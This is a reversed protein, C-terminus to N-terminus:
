NSPIQHVELLQECYQKLKTIAQKAAKLRQWRRENPQVDELLARLPLLMLSFPEQEYKEVFHSYQMCGIGKENSIILLEGIGRQQLSFVQRDEGTGSYGSPFKSLSQAFEFILNFLENKEKQSKFMEFNLEELLLRVWCFYQAFLYLTSPMFYDYTISWNPDLQYTSNSQTNKSLTLFGQDELINKLRQELDQVSGLIPNSWRIIENKIREETSLQKAINQRYEEIEKVYEKKLTELANNNQVNLNNKLIEIQTNSEKALVNKLIEVEANKDAKFKDLDKSLLHTFISKVLWTIAAVITATGFLSSIIINWNIIETSIIKDTKVTVPIQNINALFSQSKKDWINIYLQDNNDQTYVRMALDNTELILQKPTEAWSSCPLMLSFIGVIIAVSLSKPTNTSFILSTLYDSHQKM